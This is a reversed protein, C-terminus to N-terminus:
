TLAVHRLYDSVSSFGAVVAKKEIIRKDSLSVRFRMTDTQKASHEKEAVILNPLDILLGAIDEALFDQDIHAAECTM